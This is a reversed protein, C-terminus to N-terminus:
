SQNNLSFHVRQDKEKDCEDVAQPFVTASEATGFYASNQNARMTIIGIALLIMLFFVIWNYTIKM